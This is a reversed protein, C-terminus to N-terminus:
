VRQRSASRAFDILHGFVFCTYDDCTARDHDQILEPYDEGMSEVERLAKMLAKVGEPGLIANLALNASENKLIGQAKKIYQLNEPANSEFVPEHCAHEHFFIEEHLAEISVEPSPFHKVVFKAEHKACSHCLLLNGKLTYRALSAM